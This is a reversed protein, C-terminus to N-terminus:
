PMVALEVSKLGRAVPDVIHFQSGYIALLAGLGVMAMFLWANKQMFVPRWYFIGGVILLGMATVAGVELLTVIGLSLIALIMVYKFDVNFWISGVVGLGIVVFIMTAMIFTWDMSAGISIGFVGLISILAIMGITGLGLFGREDSKLGRSKNSRGERRKFLSLERLSDMM